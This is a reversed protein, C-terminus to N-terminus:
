RYETTSVNTSKIREGAMKYSSNVQYVKTGVSTKGQTM